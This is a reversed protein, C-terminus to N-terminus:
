TFPKNKIIMRKIEREKRFERKRKRELCYIKSYGYLKSNLQKLYYINPDKQQPELLYIILKLIRAM